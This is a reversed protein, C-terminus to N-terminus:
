QGNGVPENSASIEAERLLATGMRRTTGEAQPRTVRLRCVDQSASIDAKPLLAPRYEAKAQPGCRVRMAPNIIAKLLRREM